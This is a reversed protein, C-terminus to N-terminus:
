DLAGNVVPLDRRLPVTYSPDYFSVMYGNNEKVLQLCSIEEGARNKTVSVSRTMFLPVLYARDENKSWVQGFKHAFGKMQLFAEASEYREFVRHTNKYYERLKCDFAKMQPKKLKVVRTENM